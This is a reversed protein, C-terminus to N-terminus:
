PLAIAVNSITYGVEEDAIREDQDIFVSTPYGFQEDYTVNVTAANNEYANELREFVDDITDLSDFVNQPVAEGTDAFTASVIEGGQEVVNVPRNFDVPSFTSRQITYEVSAQPDSTIQEWQQRNDTFEAPLNGTNNITQIDADTLTRRAIENGAGDTAIAVDGASLEGSGDQDLVQVNVPANPDIGLLGKLNNQQADSLDLAEPEAPPEPQDILQLLQQIIQLLLVLILSNLPNQSQFSAQSASNSTNNQSTTQVPTQVSPVNNITNM